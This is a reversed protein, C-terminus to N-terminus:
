RKLFLSEHLSNRFRNGMKPVVCMLFVLPATLTFLGFFIFVYIYYYEVKGTLNKELNLVPLALEYLATISTTITFLAYWYLFEM